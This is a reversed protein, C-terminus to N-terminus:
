GALYIIITYKPLFISYWSCFFHLFYPMNTNFNLYQSFAVFNSFIEWENQCKSLLTSVLALNRWIKTKMESLRFKLYYVWGLWSQPSGYMMESLYILIIIYCCKKIMLTYTFSSSFYFIESFTILSAASKNPLYTPIISNDTKSNWARHYLSLHINPYFYVPKCSFKVKESIFNHCSMFFWSIQVKLVYSIQCNKFWLLM